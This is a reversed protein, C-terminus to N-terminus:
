RMSQLLHLSFYGDDSLWTRSTRWHATRALSRFEDVSYKYSSETHISEGAAFPFSLNDISVQQNQRSVLHMEIRGQATNYFAYHEFQDVVFDAKLERNIRTLLNKNFAATLQQSDNYARHLVNPSKKTDVGILLYSDPGLTESVNGLFQRAEVPTFNGITSGPFFGLRCETSHKPLPVTETFDGVVPQIKLHPYKRQLARSQARLYDGAIDIPTFSAITKINELLPHIKKLAGAGFEVVNLPEQWLGALDAAVRPLLALETRYPYYEDLECIADFYHSGQEDYFYKPPITKQCHSLGTLVDIMFQSQQVETARPTKRLAEPM